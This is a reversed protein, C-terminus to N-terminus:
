LTTIAGQLQLHSWEIQNHYCDFYSGSMVISMISAMGDELVKQLRLINRKNNINWRRDVIIKKFIEEGISSNALLLHHTTIGNYHTKMGGIKQGALITPIQRNGM